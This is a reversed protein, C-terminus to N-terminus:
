RRRRARGTDGDDVDRRHPRARRVRPQPHRRQRRHALRGSGVAPRIDGVVLHRGDLERREPRQRPRRRRGGGPRRVGRGPRRQQPPRRRLHLAGHLPGRRGGAAGDRARLRRVPQADHQHDRVDADRRRALGAGAARHRGRQRVDAAPLHARAAAGAPRHRSRRGRRRGEDPLEGLQRVHGAVLVAAAALVAPLVRQGHRDAATCKSYTITTTLNDFDDDPAGLDREVLVNGLGDYDFETRREFIPDDPSNYWYDDHAVILPAISWGRSAVSHVDDGLEDAAIPVVPAQADFDDPIAQTARVVNFGWTVTSGRIQLPPDTGDSPDVDVELMTAKTMLGKVFVSDNLYLQENIRLPADGDAVDLETITVKDFGLSARHTRDYALGDYAFTSAYDGTSSRGDDIDVRKMVWISDPHDVTNGKREYDVTFSGGLPNTVTKLLNSRDQQNLAVTLQDDNLSLLSDAFGDGNVDELDVSSSSRSQNFGGGGGIVLYCAVLCLPGIYATASVGGGIGSSRDFHVHEGGDIGPSVAVTALNGYDVEPLLGSGTGFRVKISDPSERRLQDLIGDGNVDRWSYTSWDYNFLLNVGGGFEGYPLSFGLGAGGTASERSEFGGGGLKVAHGTFGYGLNYFAFVGDATTYVSDPLGDGNVDAFARQIEAGPSAGFDSRLSDVQDGYTSDSPDGAGGSANPSTWSFGGSGSIGLSFSPGADSASQGKGASDGAVANTSGKTNPQIDVMGASLGGNVSITLDQNTVSTRDVSRSDLYTGVQNTYTVSGTSIVDPYGDGNLDEFDTLGFSPSLGASAGLPGIGFSLTLGPGSIGLRTPASRGGGSPPATVSSFDVSDVALRSTSLTTADGYLNARPGVWRDTDVPEATTGGGPSVAPIFAYSPQTHAEDLSADDRTPEDTPFSAPDIVFASEDMTVDGLGEGATYGAIGWGRYPQPFIGQM